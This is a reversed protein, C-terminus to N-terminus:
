SLIDIADEDDMDGGGGGRDLVECQFPKVGAHIRFHQNLDWVCTFNKGCTPCEFPRNGNHTRIHRDLNCWEGFSKNCYPCVLTKEVVTHLHRKLKQVTLYMKGCHSCTLNAPDIVVKSLARKAVTTRRPHRKRTPVQRQIQASKNTTSVASDCFVASASRAIRPGKKKEGTEPWLTAIPGLSQHRTLLM